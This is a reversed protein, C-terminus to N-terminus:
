HAEGYNDGIAAEGATVLAPWWDVGELFIDNLMKLVGEAHQEKVVYVGEDHVLLAPTYHNKIAKKFKLLLDALVERALHQVINEVIKGGYIYTKNRGEGYVWQYRTRGTEPDEYSEQRLNPYHIMNHPTEIGGPVAYCLGWNDIPVRKSTSTGAMVPLLSNCITWGEVIKAYRSRWLVVVRSAEQESIEVGGMDKAVRRFTVDGAGFGLGLQAVKGVQRQDPTIVDPVVGYLTEAAFATYLDANVPDRRYLKISEIVQWLFHNVRLEINKLDISIVKYGPPAKLGYRLCDTLKPTKGIRPMNQQNLKMAGSWRWTTSAGAYHLFVPMWGGMAKAVELFREIRSELLTSKVDLRAAAAAAIVPDEHELLDKMGQDSKALAPIMKSADSPSPKWPVEIGRSKILEAFKPQSAFTKCAKEYWDPDLYADPDVASIAELVSERKREKEKALTERLLEDDLLFQPETAMRITMDMIEMERKSTVPLLRRFIGFCLETDIANYRRMAALEEGTFDCLHKGKTNTGVLSLKEGLGFHKAIAALSGGVERNFFPRAMALTCAWRKPKIKLRWAAILADFMAANHAVFAANSWDISAAWKKINDEGFLVYDKRTNVEYVAVSILETEPHMIYLVPHMKSLSHEQSWFTEFDVIYTEM